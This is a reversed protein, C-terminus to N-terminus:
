IILFVDKFDLPPLLSIEDSLQLPLLLHSCSSIPRWNKIPNKLVSMVNKTNRGFITSETTQSKTVRFFQLGDNRDLIKQLFISIAAIQM